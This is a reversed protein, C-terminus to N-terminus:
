ILDGRCNKPNKCFCKVGIAFIDTTNYDFTLEEGRQIDKLTYVIFNKYGVNPKCSHNIFNLVNQKLSKKNPVFCFLRHKKKDHFLDIMYAPDDKKYDVIKNLIKYSEVKANNNFFTGLITGQVINVKAFVGRGKETNNKLGKNKCYKIELLDNRTNFSRVNGLM